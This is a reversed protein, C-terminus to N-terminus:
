SFMTLIVANEPQCVLKRLSNLYILISIAVIIPTRRPKPIINTGIRIALPRCNKISGMDIIITIPPVIPAVSIAYGISSIVLSM